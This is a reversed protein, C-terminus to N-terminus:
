PRTPVGATPSFPVNWPPVPVGSNSPGLSAAARGGSLPAGPPLVPRPRARWAEAPRAWSAWEAPLNTWFGVGGFGYGAQGTVGVLSGTTGPAVYAYAGAQGAFAGGAFRGSVQSQAGVTWRTVGGTSTGGDFARALGTSPSTAAAVPPVPIMPSRGSEPVPVPDAPEAALNPDLPAPLIGAVRSSSTQIAERRSSGQHVALWTLTSLVALAVGALM